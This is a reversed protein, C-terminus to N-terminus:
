YIRIGGYRTAATLAASGTQDANVYYTTASSPSLFTELHVYTYGTAAAQQKATNWVVDAASASSTSINVTRVGTANSAFRVLVKIFWTGAPVSFSGLNVWNGDSPVSKNAIATSGSLAGVVSGWNDFKTKDAASMLGATSTTANSYTTDSDIVSSTTGKSGTLIISNGSKTLTYTESAVNVSATAYDTVDFSSNTTINLTGSVLDSAKINVATGTKTGGSIYGSTNTVSPTVDISHNSVTGKTATPTGATGTTMAAVKVVGTTYRGAEVATQTSTSPTIIAAAQTTLSLTSSGSVSVTGATGSSVYGASVTPTISSSGSVSATIVGTSSNVSIGPNATITKAPTTASGNAVGSIKYYGSTSNFGTGINLYRDSTNRDITAKLTYGTTSSTTTSTPLTLTPVSASAYNTVDKTGGSTVNYTGSVLESASVTVGTGTKTDGTIWGTTNTVSPTVTVSHNSVTGKTATPTGATGSPVSASAYNTVDKTGSSNVTYTGSVLESASVTVATGNATGTTIYGATRAVSPTITISHNSVTGKTASATASGSAVSASAYNAVNHSGSASITYTGSPVIYESPIADVSVQSLGDYGSDATIVQQSTAPTATKSQLLPSPAAINVDVSAYNTVDIGIGNETIPKTGSVLESASVSVATGAKTGGEIWGTANTVSPTISISHNSVAGKNAGPKGATGNPISVSAYNTIDKSGASDVTYTGSVLESASVTAATGTKTGGTIYGTSNTVSPTISISHNSVTGKTATPTGATGSPMAAVKIAGTTYKGAEVATQTSTSPTITKAAETSLSLTSSTTGATVYGASQTHSASVVGTTSNLSISPSPHTTTSVSKTAQAGYYGSPVTVVAGSASLDDSSRTAIASGIYTSSIANVTVAQLATYGSDPTVTTKTESPNVVKEDQLYIESDTIIERITGGASDLTDIIIASGPPAAEAIIRIDDELYKGETNLHYDGSSPIALIENGKYKVSVSM